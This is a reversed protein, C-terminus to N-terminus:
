YIIAVVMGVIDDFRIKCPDARPNNDGKAIWYPGLQDKNKKLVRHIITGEGRCNKYAIIDGEKVQDPSKPTIELANAGADIIPDMSNTDTFKAFIAHQLDLVVKDNYVAIKEEPLHDAPSPREIAKGTLGEYITAPLEYGGTYTPTTFEGPSFARGVVVGLAFIILPVILKKMTYGGNVYLTKM